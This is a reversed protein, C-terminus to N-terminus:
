KMLILCFVEDHFIFAPGTRRGSRRRPRRADADSESSRDREEREDGQFHTGGAVSTPSDTGAIGEVGSIRPNSATSPVSVGIV